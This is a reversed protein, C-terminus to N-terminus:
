GVFGILVFASSVALAVLPTLTLYTDLTTTQQLCTSSHRPPPHPRARVWYLAILAFVLFADHVLWVWCLVYVHLGAAVHLQYSFYKSLTLRSKRWDPITPAHREALAGCCSWDGNVTDDLECFCM